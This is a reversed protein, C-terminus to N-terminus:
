LAICQTNPIPQEVGGKHKSTSERNSAAWVLQRGGCEGALLRRGCLLHKSTGQTRSREFYTKLIAAKSSRLLEVIKATSLGAGKFGVIMGKEFGTWSWSQLGSKNVWECAFCTHCQLQEQICRNIYRHMHLHTTASWSLPLTKIKKEDSSKLDKCKYMVLDTQSPFSLFSHIPIDLM